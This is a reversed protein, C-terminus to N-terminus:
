CARIRLNSVANGNKRRPSRLLRPVLDGADGDGELGAPVAEPQGAPQSRPTDLGMDNMGCADRYRALVPTGLGIPEICLLELAGKEAPQAALPVMALHGGYRGERLLVGLAGV